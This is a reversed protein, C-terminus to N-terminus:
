TKMFNKEDHVAADIQDKIWPYEELVSEINGPECALPTGGDTLNWDKVCAVLTEIEKEELQASTIKQRNNKQARALAEDKQRRTLKRYVDSYKGYVTVTLPEGDDGHLVTGDVPHTLEVTAEEAFKLSSLNFSNKKSVM